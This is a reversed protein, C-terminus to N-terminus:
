KGEIIELYSEDIWSPAGWEQCCILYCPTPEGKNIIKEWTSVAIITGVAAPEQDMVKVKQNIKLMAEVGKM